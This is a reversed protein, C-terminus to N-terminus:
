SGHVGLGVTTQSMQANYQSVDRETAIKKRRKEQLQQADRRPRRVFPNSSLSASILVAMSPPVTERFCSEGSFSFHIRSVVGVGDYAAVCQGLLACTYRECNTSFRPSTTRFLEFWEEPARRQSAGLM